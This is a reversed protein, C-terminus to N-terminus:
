PMSSERSSDLVGTETSVWSRRFKIFIMASESLIKRACGLACFHVLTSLLQKQGLDLAETYIMEHLILGAQNGTDLRNWLRRDITYRVSGDAQREQIALQQINCGIPLVLHQSDPIDQLDHDVFTTRNFFTAASERFLRARRPSHEALWALVYGVKTM